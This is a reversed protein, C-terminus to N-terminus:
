SRETVENRRSHRSFIVDLVCLIMRFSWFSFLFNNSYILINVNKKMVQRPWLENSVAAVFINKDIGFNLWHFGFHHVNVIISDM